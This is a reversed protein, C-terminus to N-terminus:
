IKFYGVTVAPKTDQAPSFMAFWLHQGNRGVVPCESMNIEYPQTTKAGSCMFSYDEDATGKGIINIKSTDAEVTAHTTKDSLSLTFGRDGQGGSSQIGIYLRCIILKENAQVTIGQNWEDLTIATAGGLVVVDYNGKAIDYYYEEVTSHNRM